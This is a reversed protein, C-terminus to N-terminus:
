DCDMTVEEGKEEQSWQEEEEEEESRQEEEEEEESWKEDEEEEECWQVLGKYPNAVGYMVKLKKLLARRVKAERSSVRTPLPIKVENQGPIDFKAQVSPQLYMLEVSVKAGLLSNKLREKRNTEGARGKVEEEIGQQFQAVKNYEMGQQKGITAQIVYVTYTKDNRDVFNGDDPVDSTVDKAMVNNANEQIMYFDISPCNPYMEVLCGVEICYPGNKEKHFVYDTFKMTVEKLNNFYGPKNQHAFPAVTIELIDGKSMFFPLHKEYIKSYEGPAQIAGDNWFQAFTISQGHLYKGMKEQTVFASVYKMGALQHDETVVNEVLSSYQAIVDTSEQCIVTVLISNTAATHCKVKLHEFRSKRNKHTMNGITRGFNCLLYPIDNREGVPLSSPLLDLFHSIEEPSWVPIWYMTADIKANMILAHTELKPSAFVICMNMYNYVYEKKANDILFIYNKYKRQVEKSDFIPQNHTLEVVDLMHQVKNDADLTEVCKLENFWEMDSSTGPLVGLTAIDPLDPFDVPLWALVYYLFHTKGIM